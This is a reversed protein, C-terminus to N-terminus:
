RKMVIGNISLILDCIMEHPRKMLWYQRGNRTPVPSSLDCFGGYIYVFDAKGNVLLPKAEEWLARIKRGRLVLVKYM